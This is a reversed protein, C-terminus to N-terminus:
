PDFLSYIAYCFLRKSGLFPRKQTNKLSMGTNGPFKLIDPDITEFDMPAIVASSFKERNVVFEFNEKKTTNM